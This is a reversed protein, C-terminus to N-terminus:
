RRLQVATEFDEDTISSGVAKRQGIQQRSLARLLQDLRGDAAVQAARM